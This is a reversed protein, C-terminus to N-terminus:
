TRLIRLARAVKNAFSLPDEISFFYLYFLSPNEFFWNNNLATITINNERLISIFPNVEDQLLVVQGFNITRGQSDSADFSFLSNIVLPSTTQQGSISVQINRRITVTCVKNPFDVITGGLIRAFECCLNDRPPCCPNCCQCCSTNCNQIFCPILCPNCCQCCSSQCNCCRNCCSCNNCSSFLM